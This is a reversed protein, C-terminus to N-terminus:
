RCTFYPSVHNYTTSDVVGNEILEESSHYPGHLQRYNLISNVQEKNLYPHRILDAYEAFNLRLKKVMATDVVLKDRIKYFTEEPFGYVELLQNVSYFGGLLNRYKVIRSAYVPGIGQMLILVSSDASNLETMKVPELENRYNESSSEDTQIHKEVSNFFASDIGYIKLLDERKFFVGGKNRYKIINSVQLDNFGFYMLSEARATNPNFFGKVTGTQPNDTGVAKTETKGQFILYPRILEFISDNIGYIKKMDAAKTFKGGSDRYKAINKKAFEPISLSDLQESTVLNPDFYFFKEQRASIFNRNDWKEIEQIWESYDVRPILDVQYVVIHGFIALVVLVVLVLVGHRDKKMFYCYEKLVQRFNNRM